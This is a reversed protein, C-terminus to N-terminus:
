AREPLTSSWKRMPRLVSVVNGTNGSWVESRYLEVQGTGRLLSGSCTEVKLKRTFQYTNFIARAVQSAFRCVNACGTYTYGAQRHHNVNTIRDLVNNMKRDKMSAGLNLNATKAM